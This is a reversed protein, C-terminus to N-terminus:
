AAGPFCSVHLDSDNRIDVGPGPKPLEASYAYTGACRNLSTVISLIFYTLLVVVAIGTM